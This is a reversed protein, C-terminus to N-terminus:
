NIPHMNFKIAMDMTRMMRLLFYLKAMERKPTDGAGSVALFPASDMRGAINFMVQSLKSIMCSFKIAM